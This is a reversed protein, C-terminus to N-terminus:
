VFLAPCLLVPLCTINIPKWQGEHSSPRKTSQLKSRCDLTAKLRTVQRSRHSWAWDWKLNQSRSHGTWQAGLLVWQELLPDLISFLAEMWLPPQLLWCAHLLIEVCLAPILHFSSFLFTIPVSRRRWCQPPQTLHCIFFHKLEVLKCLNTSILPCGSFTFLM